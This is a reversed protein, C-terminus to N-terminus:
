STTAPTGPAETGQLAYQGSGDDRMLRLRDMPIAAQLPLSLEPLRQAKRGLIEDVTAAQLVPYAAGLLNVDGASELERRMGATIPHATVLAGAVVGNNKEREVTGRLDRVMAPNLQMGGKVSGVVYKWQNVGTAIPILGDIGTDGGGRHQSFPRCRDILSIAAREFEMPNDVALVRWDQSSAPMGTVAFDGNM